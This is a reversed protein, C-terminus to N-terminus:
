PHILSGPFDEDPGASAAHRHGEAGAGLLNFLLDLLTSLLAGVISHSSCDRLGFSLLSDIVRRSLLLEVLDLRGPGVVNGIKLVLEPDSRKGIEVVSKLGVCVPNPGCNRSFMFGGPGYLLM